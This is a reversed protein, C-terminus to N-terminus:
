LDASLVSLAKMSPALFVAIGKYRIFDKLQLNVASGNALPVRHEANAGPFARNGFLADQANLGNPVTKFADSFDTKQLWRM